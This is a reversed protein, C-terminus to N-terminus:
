LRMPSSHQIIEMQMGHIRLTECVEVRLHVMLLFRPLAFRLLGHGMARCSALPSGYHGM